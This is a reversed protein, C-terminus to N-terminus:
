PSDIRKPNLRGDALSSRTSNFETNLRTPSRSRMNGMLALNRFGTFRTSVRGRHHVTTHTVFEDHSQATCEGAQPGAAVSTTFPLGCRCAEPNRNDPGAGGDRVPPYAERTRRVSVIPPFGGGNPAHGDAVAENLRMNDSRLHPSESPRKPAV